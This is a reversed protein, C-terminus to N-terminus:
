KELRLAKKYYIFHKDRKAECYGLKPYFSNTRINWIPTDLYAVVCDPYLEEVLKMLEIGYGKRHLKPSIFIRGVYLENGMNLFIIAGGVIKGDATATFLHNEEMMKIHWAINDYEPPGGASEAGVSIDSDFAEVSIEVLETIQESTTKELKM